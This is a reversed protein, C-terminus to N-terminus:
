VPDIGLTEVASMLGIAGQEAASVFGNKDLLIFIQSVKDAVDM